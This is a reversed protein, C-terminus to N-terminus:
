WLVMLIFLTAVPADRAMYILLEPLIKTRFLIKAIVLAEAAAVEIGSSNVLVPEVVTLM